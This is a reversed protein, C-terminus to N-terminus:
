LRRLDTVETRVRSEWSISVTGRRGEAMLGLPRTGHRGRDADLFNESDRAARVERVSGTAARDGSTIRQQGLQSTM